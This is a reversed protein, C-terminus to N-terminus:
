FWTISGFYDYIFDYEGVSNQSIFNEFEKSTEFCGWFNTSYTFFTFETPLFNSINSFVPRM